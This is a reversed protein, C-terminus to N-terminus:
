LRREALQLAGPALTLDMSNGLTTFCHHNELSLMAPRFGLHLL